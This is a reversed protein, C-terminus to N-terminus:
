SEKTHFGSCKQALSEPLLYSREMVIFGTKLYACFSQLKKTDLLRDEKFQQSMAELIAEKVSQKVIEAIVRDLSTLSESINM